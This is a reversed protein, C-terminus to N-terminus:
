KSKDIGLAELAKLSEGLYAKKIWEDGCGNLINHLRERQGGLQNIESQLYEAYAQLHPMETVCQLREEIYEESLPFGKERWFDIQYFFIQCDWIANSTAALENSLDGIRKLVKQMQALTESCYGSGTQSQWPPALPPDEAGRVSGGVLLGFLTIVYLLGHFGKM